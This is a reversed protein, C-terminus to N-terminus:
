NKSKHLYHRQTRLNTLIKDKIEINTSNKSKMIKKRGNISPKQQEEKELKNLHSNLYNIKPRKKNELTFM